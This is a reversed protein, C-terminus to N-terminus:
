TPGVGVSFGRFGRNVIWLFLLAALVIVALATNVDWSLNLKSGEDTAM